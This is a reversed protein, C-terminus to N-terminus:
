KTEVKFGAKTLFSVEKPDSLNIPGNKEVHEILANMSELQKILGPYVKEADGLVRGTGPEIAIYNEGGDVSVLKYNGIENFSTSGQKTQINKEYWELSKLKTKINKGFLYDVMLVLISM